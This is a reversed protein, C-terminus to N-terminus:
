FERFTVLKLHISRWSPSINKPRTKKQDCTHTPLRRFFYSPVLPRKEALKAPGKNKKLSKKESSAFGGVQLAHPAM